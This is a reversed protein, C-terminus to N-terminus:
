TVTKTIQLNQRIIQGGHNESKFDLCLDVDTNDKSTADSGFIKTLKSVTIEKSEM